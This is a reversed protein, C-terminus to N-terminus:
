NTLNILNEQVQPPISAITHNLAYYKIEFRSQELDKSIVCVRWARILSPNFPDGLGSDAELISMVMGM